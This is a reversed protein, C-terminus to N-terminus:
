PILDFLSAGLASAVMQADSRRVGNYERMGLQETYLVSLAESDTSERARAGRSGDWTKDAPLRGCFRCLFQRIVRPPQLRRPFHLCERSEDYPIPIRLPVGTRVLGYRNWAGRVSEWYYGAVAGVTIRARQWHSGDWRLTSFQPGGYEANMEV